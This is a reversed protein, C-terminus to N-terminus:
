WLIRACLSSRGSWRRRGFCRVRGGHQRESVELLELRDDSRTAKAKLRRPPSAQLYFVPTASEQEDQEVDLRDFLQRLTM